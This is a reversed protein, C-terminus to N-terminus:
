LIKFIISKKGAETENLLTVPHPLPPHFLVHSLSGLNSESSPLGFTYGKALHAVMVPRIHVNCM